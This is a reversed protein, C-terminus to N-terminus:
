RRQALRDISREFSAPDFSEPEYVQPTEGARGLLFSPTSSVGFTQAQERAERLLRDAEESNREALARSVDLGAAQALAKLFDDTVYGSNEQGQNAFFLEIFPFMRNQLAAAAAMHAGNVSGPGLFALNRFVLRLRGARVYDRVLTPLTRVAFEACYPCQLDAFETLVVPANPDGLSTGQEPIGAFLTDVAKAGEIAAANGQSTDASARACSPLAIAMAAALTRVLARFARKMRPPALVIRVAPPARSNVTRRGPTLLENAGIDSRRRSRVRRESTRQAPDDAPPTAASSASM